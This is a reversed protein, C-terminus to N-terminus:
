HKLEDVIKTTRDIIEQMKISSARNEADFTRWFHEHLFSTYGNNCNSLISSKYLNEYINDDSNINLHLNTDHFTIKCDKNVNLVDNNKKDWSFVQNCEMKADKNKLLIELNEMNDNYDHNIGFQQKINRSNSGGELNSKSYRFKSDLQLDQMELDLIQKNMEAMAAGTGFELIVVLMSLVLSLATLIFPAKNSEQQQNQITCWFDFTSM